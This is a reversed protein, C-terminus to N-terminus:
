ISSLRALCDLLVSLYEMEPSSGNSALDMLGDDIPFVVGDTPMFYKM